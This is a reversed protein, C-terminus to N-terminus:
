RRKKIPEPTKPRPMAKVFEEFVIKLLEPDSLYAQCVDDLDFDNQPDCFKLSAKTIYGLKDSISFPPLNGSEEADSLVKLTDFVERVTEDYSDTGLYEALIKIAGYGFKIPYMTGNLNITTQQKM